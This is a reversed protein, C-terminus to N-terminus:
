NYEVRRSLSYWRAFGFTGFYWLNKSECRGDRNSFEHLEETQAGWGRKKKKIEYHEQRSGSTNTQAYLPFRQLKPVSRGRLAKKQKAVLREILMSSNRWAQNWLVHHFGVVWFVISFSCSKGKRRDRVTSHWGQLYWEAIKGSYGYQWFHYALLKRKYLQFSMNGLDGKLNSQVMKVMSAILTYICASKM